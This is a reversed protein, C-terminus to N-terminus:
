PFWYHYTRKHKLVSDAHGEKSFVASSVKEKGSLTEVGYIPKEVQAQLLLDMFMTFM